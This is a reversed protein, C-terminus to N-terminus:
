SSGETLIITQLAGLSVLGVLARGFDFKESATLSREAAEGLSQGALLELAFDVDAPPLVHLHVDLVPRVVLVTESGTSRVPEVASNQHALWISGIPYASQVLGVAPHPQVRSRLLAEPSIAAVDNLGLPKTDAAHYARQWVAELRAIDALYPLSAAPAFSAIFEPFNDGYEFLLPSVPKIQQAFVRAMGRFFEEGVLRETIPFRKALANVLGVYVNNRYVAFRSADPMGRATTVGSPLPRDAHLLAEAFSAQSAAFDMTVSGARAETLM